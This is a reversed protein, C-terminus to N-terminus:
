GLFIWITAGLFLVGGVAAIGKALLLCIKADFIKALAWFLVAVVLVAGFCMAAFIFVTMTAWTTTVM